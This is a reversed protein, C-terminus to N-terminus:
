FSHGGLLKLSKVEKICSGIGAIPQSKCSEYWVSHGAFTTIKTKRQQAAVTQQPEASSL